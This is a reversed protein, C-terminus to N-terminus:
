DGCRATTVIASISLPLPDLQTIWVSGQDGWTGTIPIVRPGTYLAVPQGMPEMAIGRQEWAFMHGLDEGYHGARTQFFVPTVEQCVMQKGIPTDAITKHEAIPLTQLQCYIPLGVTLVLFNQSQPTTFTGSNSVVTPTADIIANMVVNGDGLGSIALGALQTLGSFSSKAIGWAAKNSGQAWTPVDQSPTGFVRMNNTYSTIVFSVSALVYGAPLPIGGPYQLGTLPNIDTGDALLQMVVANGVNASSFTPVNVNLEIVDQVTWGTSMVTTITATPNTNRGDYTLSCDTFVADTLYQLDQFDRNAMREIYRVTSGEVTRNVVLYVADQTNEPVVCLQEVTGGLTDCHFWGYVQQDKDYRMASLTGDSMVCWIISHLIQQWDIALITKGEFVQPSYETTDKGVFTNTYISYQLDRVVTGRAQIYIGSNGIQAPNILQSGQTGQLVLGVASPTITNYQNGNALFEGSSTHIILRGIDVLAQVYQLTKSAITFQVAMADTEPSAVTFGTILSIASMWVTSPQNVTNAFCVRQQYAGCVAPWDNATQFMPIATPPQQSINPTIFTDNFTNTFSEGIFGFVGVNWPNSVYINYKAAPTTLITTNATGSTYASCIWRYVGVQNIVISSTPATVTQLTTWNVGDLSSQLLLTGVFTGTVSATGPTVMSVTLEGGTAIGTFTDSQTQGTATWTIVNPTSPSPNGAVYTSVAASPLGENGSADVATVVYTYQASNGGAGPALKIPSAPLVGIDSYATAGYVVAIIAWPGLAPPSLAKYVVYGSAGSVTNWSLAVPHGSSATGVSAVANNSPPSESGLSDNFASVVYNDKPSGNGGTATLGTPALVTGTSPVGPIVSSIVPVPTINLLYLGATWQQDSLRTLVMPHMLQHTMILLSNQQVYQLQQIAGQPITVPIEVAPVGGIVPQIYWFTPSTTPTNATNSAQLSYYYNGSYLVVVGLPYTIGSSWTSSSAVSIPAGGKYVRIATASIELLYGVGIGFTFRALRCQAAQNKVADIFNTGSRNEISGYRTIWANRQTQLSARYREQDTKGLLQQGLEGGSLSSQRIM